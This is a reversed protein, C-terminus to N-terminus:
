HYGQCQRGLDYEANENESTSLNPNNNDETSYKNWFTESISSIKNKSYLNRCKFKTYLNRCKGTVFTSYFNRDRFDSCSGGNTHQWVPILFFMQSELNWM